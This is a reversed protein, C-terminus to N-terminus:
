RLPIWRGVRRSLRIYWPLRRLRCRQMAKLSEQEERSLKNIDAETADRLTLADTLVSATLCRPNPCVYLDGPNTDEPVPTIAM